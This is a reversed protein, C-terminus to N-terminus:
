SVLPFSLFHTVPFLKPHLPRGHFSSSVVEPPLLAKRELKEWWVASVSFARKKKLWIYSIYLYFFLVDSFLGALWSYMCLCHCPVTGRSVFPVFGWFCVGFGAVM